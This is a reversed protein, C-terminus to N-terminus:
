EAKLSFLTVEPRRNPSRRRGYSLGRNVYLQGGSPLEYHGGIFHRHKTPRM